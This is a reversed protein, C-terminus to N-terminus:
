LDGYGSYVEENKIGFTQLLKVIDVKTMGCLPAELYIPNPGNIELVKSMRGVWEQKCDPFANLYDSYDAGYWIRNVGMNEAISAAVGVFMMNRSPVHMEHVGEYTGKKGDGTLGSDINLGTIKVAHNPINKEELQKVAYSLEEIHLQGYNVLVCYPKYEQRLAIELMLRSDAGGSYLIVLDCM